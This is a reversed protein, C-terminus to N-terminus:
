HLLLNSLEIRGGDDTSRLTLYPESHGDKYLSLSVMQEERTMTLIGTTVFNMGERATIKEKFTMRWGDPAVNVEIRRLNNLDDELFWLGPLQRPGGPAEFRVKLLEVERTEREEDFTFVLDDTYEFSKPIVIEDMQYSHPDPSTLCRQTREIMELNWGARTLRSKFEQKSEQNVWDDMVARRQLISRLHETIQGDREPIIWDGKRATFLAATQNPGFYAREGAIRCWWGQGVPTAEKEATGILDGRELFLTHCITEKLRRPFGREM